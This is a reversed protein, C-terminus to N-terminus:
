RARELWESRLLGMIVDDQYQGVVWAQERRRGEEIFGVKRYSAIAGTNSALVLLHIRHLNRRSFAFDALVRLADTGYGKGRAGDVLGIGVEANRALHDFNMLSCSGVLTADVEIGFQVTDDEALRKTMREQWETRDTPRPPWPSRQEWTELDAAMAYLVDFDDTTLTRLAVLSGTLM